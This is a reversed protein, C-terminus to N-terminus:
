SKLEMIGEFARQPDVIFGPRMGFMPKRTAGILQALIEPKGATFSRDLYSFDMLPTLCPRNFTIHLALREGDATRAYNGAWTHGSWCIVSGAKAVVPITGEEAEAEAITPMRNLKHSGPVVKSTGTELNFDSLAWVTQFVYNHEPFPSILHDAVDCHIGLSRTGRARVTATMASLIVANGCMYKALAQIQPKLVPIDFAPDLGLLFQLEGSFTGRRGAVSPLALRKTVEALLETEARSLVNEVVTYGQDRLEVLNQKLGLEAVSPALSESLTYPRPSVARTSTGIIPSTDVDTM